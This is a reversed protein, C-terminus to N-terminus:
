LAPYYSLCGLYHQLLFEVVYQIQNKYLFEGVIHEKSLLFGYNNAKSIGEVFLFIAIASITRPESLWLDQDAITRWRRVILQGGDEWSWNGEMKETM